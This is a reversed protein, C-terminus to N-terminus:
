DLRGACQVGESPTVPMIQEAGAAQLRRELFRIDEHLAIITGGKGAGALKAAAAGADLAAAILRENAEGSGGLDRQIRHNENMLAALRTWDRRLLAVKGERALRGIREYGQVVDPDGALWRERLGGHVSGSHRRVGTNALLLPLGGPPPELQEVTGFVADQRQRPCKDRFDAFRLGGFVCLYQDQFGCVTGMVDFEIRRAEEALEYPNMDRDLLRLIAALVAVLMATSGSLGAEIPVTTEGRLHFPPGDLAEPYAALVAQAVRTYGGDLRLEDRGALEVREGCVELLFSDSREIQVRARESIAASLVSGGYGDTPNGVIGCRGPASAQIV